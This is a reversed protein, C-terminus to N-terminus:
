FLEKLIARLHQNFTEPDELMPYHGTHPLIVADFDAHITRNKEIQTKYLDGNICRIPINLGKVMAPLDLTDFSEMMAAAIEPSNDMMDEEIGSRFEPDTDAHFLSNIMRKITAEFNNRYADALNKYYGPPAKVSIDQLTDVAVVAAITDPLLRATELAVPGGLSNGILVAKKIKQSKIVAVVDKAFSPIGWNQRNSGSDGHGALDLAIVMHNASFTRVQNDWYSRDAFGGHIFVLAPEAKGQCTYVIEVGDFSIAKGTSTHDSGMLNGYCFFLVALTAFFFGSLLKLIVM